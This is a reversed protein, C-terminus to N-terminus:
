NDNQNNATQSSTFKEKLSELSDSHCILVLEDGKAMKTDHEILTFKDDRYFFIARTKAPLDLDGITQGTHAETINFAYFRAEDKMVTSLELIDIGTAMDALYRSITRSTIITDELGLELCVSEFEQEHINVVVRQFGLTRAVLAAIINNQDNNTLCFLFDCHKPDVERLINPRSGDGHLFSCDLGESLEDIRLHDSGFPRDAPWPVAGAALTSAHSLAHLRDFGPM